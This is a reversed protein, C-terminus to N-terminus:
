AGVDVAEVVGAVDGDGGVATEEDAAADFVVEVVALGVHGEVALADPHGSVRDALGVPLRQLPMRPTNKPHPPAGMFRM